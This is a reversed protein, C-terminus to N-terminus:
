SKAKAGNCKEFYDGANKPHPKAATNFNLRFLSDRGRGTNNSRTTSLKSLKLPGVYGTWETM